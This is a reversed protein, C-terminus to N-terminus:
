NKKSGNIIKSRLKTSSIDIKLNKLFKINKNKQNRMIVSKNAKTDFGKRSFVVLICLKLLEKYNKWKHFNILNDSGIIFFIKCKRRKKLFKLLAISTKSKLKDEYYNLKIKKHNKILKRCMKKRLTLSFFPTEKLPNKKTIAWIVKELKLLKISKKSIYIHGKHPPDFSGGLIGINVFNNKAM